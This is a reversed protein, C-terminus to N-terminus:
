APGSGDTDVEGGLALRSVGPTAALPGIADAMVTRLRALDGGSLAPARGRAARLLRPTLALRVVTPALADVHAAPDISRVAAALAAVDTPAALHLYALPRDALLWDLLGDVPYPTEGLAGAMRAERQQALAAGRRSFVVLAFAVAACVAVGLPWPGRMIWLPGLVAGAIMLGLWVLGLGGGSRDDDLFALKMLKRPPSPQERPLPPIPLAM